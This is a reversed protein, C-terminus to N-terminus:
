FTYSVVRLTYNTRWPVGKSAEDATGKQFSINEFVILYPSHELLELYQFLNQFKGSVSLRFVPGAEGEATVSTASDVRLSVGSERAVQELDKIFRVINKEDIFLNGIESREELYDELLNNLARVNKLKNESLAIEARASNLEATLVGLRSFLFWGSALILLMLVGVSLLMFSFRRKKM